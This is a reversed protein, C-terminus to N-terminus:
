NTLQNVASVIDIAVDAIYIYLRLELRSLAELELGELNWTM